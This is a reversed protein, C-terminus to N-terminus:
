AGARPRAHARPRGEVAVVVQLPALFLHRSEEARPSPLDAAHGQRKEAEGRPSQEPRKDTAAAAQVHFVKLQHHQAVLQLYQAPLDSPWLEPHNISRQQDDCGTM